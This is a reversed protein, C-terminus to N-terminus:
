NEGLSLLGESIWGSDTWYKVNGRLQETYNKSSIKPLLGASVLSDRNKRFEDNIGVNIVRYYKNLYYSLVSHEPGKEDIDVRLIGAKEKIIRFPSNYLTYTAKKM